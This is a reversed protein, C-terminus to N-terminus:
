NQNSKIDRYIQELSKDFENIDFNQPDDHADPIGADIVSHFAPILYKNARISAAFYILALRNMQEKTFGLSPALADNNKNSGEPYSRRPQVLEVGVYLNKRNVDKNEFKTTRYNKSLDIKTLSKGVRNVYIHANDKYKSLDNWKDDSKNINNPFPKSRYNPTSTDHVIFYNTKINLKEDISGGLENLDSINNKKLYVKLEDKTFDIKKINLKSSLTKPLTSEASLRGFTNVKRLLCTAQEVAIGVYLNKSSDFSCPTEAKVLSSFLAATIFTIIMKM